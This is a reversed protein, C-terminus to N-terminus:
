VFLEPDYRDGPHFLLFSRILGPRTPRHLRNALRYVSGKAEEEASFLSISRLTVSGIRLPPKPECSVPPEAWSGAPLLVVLAAALVLSTLSNGPSKLPTGAPGYGAQRGPWCRGAPGGPRGRGGRRGARRM